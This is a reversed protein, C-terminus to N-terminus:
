ARSKQTLEFFAREIDVARKLPFYDDRIKVLHNCWNEYAENNIKSISISLGSLKFQDLATNDFTKLM